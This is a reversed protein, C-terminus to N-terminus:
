HQFNDYNDKIFLTLALYDGSKPSGIELDINAWDFSTKEDGGILIQTDDPLGEFAKKLDAITLPRQDKM